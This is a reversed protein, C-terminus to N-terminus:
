RPLYSPRQAEFADIAGALENRGELRRALACLWAVQASLRPLQTLLKSVSGELLELESLEEPTM